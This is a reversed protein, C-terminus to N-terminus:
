TSCFTRLANSESVSRTSNSTVNIFAGAAHTSSSSSTAELIKMAAPLHCGFMSHCWALASWWSRNRLYARIAM